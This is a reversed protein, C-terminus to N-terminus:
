VYTEAPVTGHTLREVVKQLAVSRHSISNKEDLTLEAMTKELKPLHFVSDYGFGNNGSPQRSIRGCCEGSYTEYLDPNWALVMVCRFRATRMKEPIDDLKKLLFENRQEHTVNVGAYRASMVGPQRNLADVELGSDDALTVMGSLHAYTRAKISANEELTSGTEPVEVSIKLEQLSVVTYPCNSLQSAIEKFKGGNTTAVLLKPIEREHKTVNM